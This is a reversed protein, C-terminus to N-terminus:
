EPAEASSRSASSSRSRASAALSARKSWTSSELEAHAAKLGPNNELGLTLIEDLSLRLIEAPEGALASPLASATGAVTASTPIAFLALLCVLRAGNRIAARCTTAQTMARTWARCVAAQNLARSM